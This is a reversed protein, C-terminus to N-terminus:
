MGRVHTRWCAVAGKVEAGTGVIRRKYASQEQQDYLLTGIVQLPPLNERLM